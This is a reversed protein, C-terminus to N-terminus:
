AVELKLEEFEYEDRQEDFSAQMESAKILEYVKRREDYYVHTCDIAMELLGKGIKQHRHSSGVVEGASMLMVNDGANSLGRLWNLSEAKIEGRAGLQDGAFLYRKGFFGELKNRNFGTLHSKPTTRVDILFQIQLHDLLVKLSKPTLKDFGITYIVGRGAISVPKRTALEPPPEFSGPALVENELIQVAARLNFKAERVMAGFDPTAVDKGRMEKRWIRKLLQIGPELMGASNFRIVKCRSALRDEIKSVDNSTLFYITQPIKMTGDLVSLFIQQAAPTFRDVEDFICSHWRANEGFLPIGEPTRRVPSYHCDHLTQEIRELDAFKAPVHHIESDLAQAVAFALSTKGTGSDGLMLFAADYPRQLFATFIKVAHDIGVFDGLVKPQYKAVLEM